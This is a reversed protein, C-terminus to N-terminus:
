FLESHNQANIFKIAEEKHDKHKRLTRRTVM